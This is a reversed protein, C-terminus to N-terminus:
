GTPGRGVAVRSGSAASFTGSSFRARRALVVRVLLSMSRPARISPMERWMDTCAAPRPSRAPGARRSRGPRCRAWWPRLAAASPLVRDDGLVVHHASSFTPMSLISMSPRFVSVTMWSATRSSGRLAVADGISMSASSARRDRTYASSREPGCRRRDELEFRGEGGVREAVIFHSRKSSRTAVFASSRGPGSSVPMCGHEDLPLQALLRHGVRVRQELLNELGGVADDGILFLHHPDRVDEGAEREGFGVHEPLRHALLILLQDVLLEGLEHLAGRRLSM